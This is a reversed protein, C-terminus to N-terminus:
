LCCCWVWINGGSLLWISIFPRQGEIPQLSDAGVAEVGKLGGMQSVESMSM